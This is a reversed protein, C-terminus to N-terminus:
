YIARERDKQQTTREFKQVHEFQEAFKSFKRKLIGKLGPPCCCLWAVAAAVVVFVALFYIYLLFFPFFSFVLSIIM